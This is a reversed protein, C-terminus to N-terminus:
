EIFRINHVTSIITRISQSGSVHVSSLRTGNFVLRDVRSRPIDNGVFIQEDSIVILSQPSALNADITHAPISLEMEGFIFIDM